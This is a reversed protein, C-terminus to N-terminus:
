YGNKEFWNQAWTPTPLSENQHLQALAARSKAVTESPFCESHDVVHAAMAAAMAQGDVNQRSIALADASVKVCPDTETRQAATCATIALLGMALVTSRYMTMALTM